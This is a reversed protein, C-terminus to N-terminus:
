LPSTEMHTLFERTPRYVGLLCVKEVHHMNKILKEILAGHIEHVPFMANNDLM